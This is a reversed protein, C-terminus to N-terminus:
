PGRKITECARRTFYLVTQKKKEAAAVWGFPFSSLGLVAAGSTLLMERRKMAVDGILRFCFSPNRDVNGLM